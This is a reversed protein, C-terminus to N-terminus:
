WTQGGLNLGRRQRRTMIPSRGLSKLWQEAEERKLATEDYEKPAEPDKM